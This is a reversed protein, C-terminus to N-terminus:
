VELEPYMKDFSGPIVTGDEKIVPAIIPSIEQNGGCFVECICPKADNFINKIIRSSGKANKIVKYKIKYAKAIKRLSPFSVGSKKNCGIYDSKFYNDQTTSM